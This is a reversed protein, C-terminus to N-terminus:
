WVASVPARRWQLDLERKLRMDYHQQGLGYIRGLEIAEAVKTEKAQKKCLVEMKGFLSPNLDVNRFMWEQASRWDSSMKVLVTMM